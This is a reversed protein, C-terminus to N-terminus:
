AVDSITTIVNGHCGSMGENRLSTQSDQQVEIRTDSIVVQLLKWECLISSLVPNTMGLELIHRSVHFIPNFLQEIWPAWMKSDPDPHM